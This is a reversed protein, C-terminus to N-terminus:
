IWTRLVQARFVGLLLQTSLILSCLLIPLVTSASVEELDNSDLSVTIQYDLANLLHQILSLPGTAASFSGLTESGEGDKEM